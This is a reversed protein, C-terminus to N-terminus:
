QSKQKAAAAAKAAAIKRSTNKIFFNIFAIGGILAVAPLRFLWVPDFFCKTLAIPLKSAVAPLITLVWLTWYVAIFLGAIVLSLGFFRDFAGM